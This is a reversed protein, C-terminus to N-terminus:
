AMIDTRTRGRGVALRDSQCRLDAPTHAGSIDLVSWRRSVADLAEHNRDGLGACDSRIPIAQEIAPMAGAPLRSHCTEPM